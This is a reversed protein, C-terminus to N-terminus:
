QEILWLLVVCKDNNLTSIGSTILCRDVNCAGGVYSYDRPVLQEFILFCYFAHECKSKIQVDLSNLTNNAIWNDVQSYNADLLKSLTPPFPNPKCFIIDNINKHQNRLM